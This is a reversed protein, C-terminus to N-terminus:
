GLLTGGTADIFAGTIWRAEDTALFTVVDAVDVAEGVRKFASFQAMQEVAEPIDFVPGGNNTIGPAVSNVTIGRPALHRAFHLTLQEVAGKTMAYAVQDPSAFRTLGSSINIVRGGEPLLGLARQVIFFPARVNVAFLRDFDEPTVDEPVVGAPTTVGANNILIDLTTEGTREKLGQELGLFLEHVGGTTGLEARVPFARGGDTEILEVTERAAAENGAYHVAVLAGKAALQRATARGIGRSSGTVLATKTTLSMPTEKDDPPTAAAPDAPGPLGSIMRALHSRVDGLRLLEAFLQRAPEVEPGGLLLLTQARINTLTRAGVAHRARHYGDLASEGGARDAILRGSLDAADQLGLNLAQGGVPMQRHAADGALLVRGLRYRTVQQSTDDFANRWLPTGHRISEGTVQEWADAIETFEPEGGAGRPAAGYVHVMVRTSSDPWRSSVALGHPHREFRRAPVDIGAVDARLMERRAGSGAVEFGALERVTSREGDCGVLYAGRHAHRTGNGTVTEVLVHDARSTLATVRHGRRLVAGAELARALLVAEMRVQPCKWQGSFRHAPDAETLDLRLGGFHGPGGDPLPGLRDLLGREAFLDMTRAHLTSARSETTPAGLQELVTVGVGAGALDGALLLGVPGAGVILVDTDDVPKPM